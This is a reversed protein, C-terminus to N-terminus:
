ERFIIKGQVVCQVDGTDLPEEMYQKRHMWQKQVENEKRHIEYLVGNEELQAERTDLRQKGISSVRCGTHKFTMKRYQKSYMGQTM